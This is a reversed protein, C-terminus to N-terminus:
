LELVHIIYLRIPYSHLAVCIFLKYNFSFPIFCICCFHGPMVDDTIIFWAPYIGLAHNTSYYLRSLYIYEEM